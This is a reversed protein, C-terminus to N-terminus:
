GGGGGDGPTGPADDGRAGDSGDNADDAREDTGGQNGDDNGGFHAALGDLDGPRFYNPIVPEEVVVGGEALYAYLEQPEFGEVLTYAEGHRCTFQIPRSRTMHWIEWLHLNPGDRRGNPHAWCWWLQLALQLAWTRERKEFERDDGLLAVLDGISTNMRSKLNSRVQDPHVGLRKMTADAMDEIKRLSDLLVLRKNATVGAALERDIVERQAYLGSLNRVNPTHAPNDLEPFAALINREVEARFAQQDLSAAVPNSQDLARAARQADKDLVRGEGRKVRPSPLGKGTEMDYACKTKVRKAFEAPCNRWVEGAETQGLLCEQIKERAVTVPDDYSRDSEPSQFWLAIRYILAEIEDKTFDAGDEKVGVRYQKIERRPTYYRPTEAM